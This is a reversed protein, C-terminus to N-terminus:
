FLGLIFKRDGKLILILGTVIILALAALKTVTFVNQVHSVAKV